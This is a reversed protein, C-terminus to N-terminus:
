SDLVADCSICKGERLYGSCESTLARDNTVYARWLRVPDCMHVIETIEDALWPRESLNFPSLDPTRLLFHGRPLAEWLYDRIAGNQLLGVVEEFAQQRTM